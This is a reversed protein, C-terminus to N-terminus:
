IRAQSFSIMPALLVLHSSPDITGMLQGAHLLCKVFEDEWLHLSEKWEISLHKLYTEYTM